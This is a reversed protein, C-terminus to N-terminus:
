KSYILNCGVFLGIAAAFASTWAILATWFGHTYVTSLFLAGLICVVLALGIARRM